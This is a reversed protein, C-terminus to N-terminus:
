LKLWGDAYRHKNQLAQRSLFSPVLTAIKREKKRRQKITRRCIVKENKVMVKVRM